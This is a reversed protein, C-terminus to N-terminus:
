NWLLSTVYFLYQVCHVNELYRYNKKKRVVKVKVGSM